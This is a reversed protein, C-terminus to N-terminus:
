WGSVEILVSVKYLLQEVKALVPPFFTAVCVGMRAFVSHLAWVEM